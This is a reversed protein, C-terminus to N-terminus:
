GVSAYIFNESEIVKHPTESPMEDAKGRLSCKLRAEPNKSILKGDAERFFLVAREVLASVLTQRVENYHGDTLGCFRNGDWRYGERELAYHTEKIIFDALSADSVRVEEGRITERDIQSCLAAYFKEPGVYLPNHEVNFYAITVAWAISRDTIAPNQSYEPHLALGDISM